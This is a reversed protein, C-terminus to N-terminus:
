PSSPATVESSSSDPYLVALLHFDPVTFSVDLSKIQLELQERGREVLLEITSRDAAQCAADDRRLTRRDLLANLLSVLGWDQVVHVEGSHLVEAAAIVSRFSATGSTVRESVRFVVLPNSLVTSAIATVSEDLSRAQLIAQDVASHGVGLISSIEADQNRTFAMDRYSKRVAASNMWAEPTKFSLGGENEQYRRSNLALMAKFFPL